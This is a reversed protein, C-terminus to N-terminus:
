LASKYTTHKFTQFSVAHMKNKIYTNVSLKNAILWQDIRSLENNGKKSLKHINKEKIFVSTDDAFMIQESIKLCLRFDNVHLLFLLPGLVSGQPVGHTIQNINSSVQQTRGALYSTFWKLAIGRVGFHELKSLLIAHDITDFAKSLDLFIGLTSQKSALSRTIIYIWWCQFQM